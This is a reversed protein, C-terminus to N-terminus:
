DVLLLNILAFFVSQNSININQTICHFACPRNNGICFLCVSRYLCICAFEPMRLRICVPVCISICVSSSLLCVCVSLYLCIFAYRGCLCVFAFLYFSIIIIIIIVFASLCVFVPLSLRLCVFASLYLCVFASLCLHSFASVLLRLCVSVLLHVPLSPRRCAAVALPRRRALTAESATNLSVQSVESPSGSRCRARRGIVTPQPTLCTSTIPQRARSAPGARRRHGSHTQIHALTTADCSRNGHWSRGLDSSPRIM